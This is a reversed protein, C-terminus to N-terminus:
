PKSVHMMARNLAAVIDSQTAESTKDNALVVKVTWAGGFKTATIAKAGILDIEIELQALSHKKTIIM